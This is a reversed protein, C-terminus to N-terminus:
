GRGEFAESIVRGDAGSPPPIALAAALTPALDIARAGAITVGRRVGPGVLIFPPRMNVNMRADVADPLYGHQGLLPAPAVLRKPDSADFQHPPAAFIVVDGTRGRYLMNAPGDSTAIAACDESRLVRAIVPSSDGQSPRDAHNLREFAAVIRRRVGDFEEATVIGGPERGELNVYVNCTGGAWFAAAQSTPLPRGERDADLLGARQLVLNANISSWAAAFGHDSSVAVITDGGTADILFGLLSDAGAYAQQLYGEFRDVSARDYGPYAPTVRAMFQHSFEDTVPTGAFLLDPQYTDIVYQYVQQAHPYFMMGQEVYTVEDILGAEIPGHDATEPVDFAESALVDELELTSARMRSITTFYLWFQALDPQLEILKFHFGAARGDTLTVRVEAWDGAALDCVRASGHKATGILVRDYGAPTTAYV